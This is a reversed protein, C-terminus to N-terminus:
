ATLLVDSLHCVALYVVQLCKIRLAEPPLCNPLLAKQVTAEGEDKEDLKDNEDCDSDLLCESEKLWEIIIITHDVDDKGYNLNM